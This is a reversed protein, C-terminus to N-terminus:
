KPNILNHSGIRRNPNVGAFYNQDSMSILAVMQMGADELGTVREWRIDGYDDVLVLEGFMDPFMKCSGDPMTMPTTTSAVLEIGSETTMLLCPQEMFRIAEIERPYVRDPQYAVGDIIMGEKASGAVLNTTLYQTVAVCGSSGSGGGGSTGGTSGGSSFSPNATGSSAGMALWHVVSPGFGNNQQQFGSTSVGSTNWRYSSPTYTGTGEPTSIVTPKSNFLKPWYINQYTGSAGVFGWQVCWGGPGIVWGSSGVAGSFDVGSVAASIKSDIQASTYTGVQAATVAHPNSHNNIHNNLPTVAIANIASNTTYPTMYLTNSAGSNADAASAMGYNQVSGLGVQAKTVQHPNDTRAIHANLPSLAQASIAQAVKLPTMFLADSAGAQADATSAVGYNPVNGLNVQAATVQHPNNLNNIHANFANGILATIASAVLAPTMYLVNSTGAQADATSAVGYNQVSGLGVQAKTVQHPNNLNNIHNNLPTVALVNIAQATKLPTMYLADSTGAQADNTTAVGYNQVNGLGVQAATVQHPNTHDNVHQQILDGAQQAIAAKTNAPTMYLVNSTGAQADAVTAIGYNQVNGLGVDSATVHHPNNYDTIHAALDNEVQTQRDSILGDQHDVYDYIAQHSANDGTLIAQRIQELMVTLYEFGYIDGLDHLHPAPAFQEPKGLLDGWSVARDDISLAAVMQQIAYTSDSFEGGVVQYDISYETGLSEDTIVIVACIEEGARETADVFLQVAKYQTGPTLITNDPMSRVVLSRTFFPGYDPVFARNTANALSQPEGTVLNNPSVGTLDLPYKILQTSM